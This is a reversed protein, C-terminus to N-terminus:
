TEIIKNSDLTSNTTVLSLHIFIFVLWGPLTSRCFSSETLNHFIQSSVLLLIILGVDKNKWYAKLALRFTQVLVLLFLFSGVIGLENLVDLYGNHAQLPGWGVEQLLDMAQPNSANWFANYGIGLWPHTLFNRIIGAWLVTRGTLTTNRHFIEQFFADFSLSQLNLFWFLLILMPIPALVIKIPVSLPFEIFVYLAGILGLVVVATSSNTKVVTILTLLIIFLGVLRSYSSLTKRGVLPLWLVFAYVAIMGLTNKHYTFGKWNGNEDFARPHKVAVFAISILLASTFVLRLIYLMKKEYRPANVAFWGIFIIGAFHIVRKLSIMPVISWSVSILTYFLLVLIWKFTGLRKSKHRDMLLIGLLSSLYIVSLFFQRFVDGEVQNEMRGPTYGRPFFPFYVLYVIALFLPVLYIWSSWHELAPEDLREQIRFFASSDLQPSIQNVHKEM